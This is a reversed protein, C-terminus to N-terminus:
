HMPRPFALAMQGSGAGREDALLAKRAIIQRKRGGAYNARANREWVEEKSLREGPGDVVKKAREWRM